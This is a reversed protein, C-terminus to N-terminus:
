KWNFNNVFSCSRRIIGYNVCGNPKLTLEIQFYWNVDRPQICIRTSRISRTFSLDLNLSRVEKKGVVFLFYYSSFNFYIRIILRSNRLSRGKILSFSRRNLLRIYYYLESPPPKESHQPKIKKRTCPLSILRRIIFYHYHYYLWFHRRVM